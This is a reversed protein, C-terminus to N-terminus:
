DIGFSSYMRWSCPSYNYKTCYSLPQVFSNYILIVSCFSVMFAVCEDVLNCINPTQLRKGLIWINSENSLRGKVELRAAESPRDLPLTLLLTPTIYTSVICSVCSRTCFLVVCSRVSPDDYNRRVRGARLLVLSRGGLREGHGCQM